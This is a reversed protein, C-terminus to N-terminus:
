WLSLRPSPWKAALMGDLGFTKGADSLAVTLSMFASFIYFWLFAPENLSGFFSVLLNIALIAGLIGAVRTLLGIVLLIGIVAELVTQTRTIIQWNPIVINRLLAAYTPIPNTEAARDLIPKVWQYDFWKQSSFYLWYFGIFLRLVTKWADWIQSLPSKKM